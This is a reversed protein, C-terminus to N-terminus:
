YFAKWGDENRFLRICRIRSDDTLYFLHRRGAPIVILDGPGTRIKFFFDGSLAQVEFVGEGEVVFRVEDELHHHERAFRECIGSFDPTKPDLSVLDATRYGRDKKITELDTHYAALVDADTSGEALHLNWSEYLIGEEALTRSISEPESLTRGKFELFAM